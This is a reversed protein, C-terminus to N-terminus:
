YEVFAAGHDDILRYVKSDKVFINKNKNNLRISNLNNLFFLYIQLEPPASSM